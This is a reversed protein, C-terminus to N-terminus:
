SPTFTHFFEGYFFVMKENLRILATLPVNGIGHGHVHKFVQLCPTKTLFIRLLFKKIANAKGCCCLESMGNYTVACLSNHTRRIPINYRNPRYLGAVEDHNGCPILYSLCARCLHFAIHVASKILKFQKLSPKMKKIKEASQLLDAM